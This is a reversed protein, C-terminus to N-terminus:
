NNYNDYYNDDGGLTLAIIYLSCYLLDVCYLNWLLIDTFPPHVRLCRSMKSHRAAAPCM